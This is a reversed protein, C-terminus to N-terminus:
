EYLSRFKEKLYQIYYDPNFEEGTMDLLLENTSRMAGFQHIHERLYERIPLINGDKLYQEVPMVTSIHDYIQAAAASGLVYSPFYGFMGGSWHVDSLVGDKDSSVTVDLYEKYKKNWAKPLDKVKLKGSILDKELEYRIMIHVPYTLEDANIRVPGQIPKNIGLIFDNLSLDKLQEPYMEKLKPFLPEWFAETKGLMNEFFRSQSEHMGMSAGEGVPTQTLEDAIGLEYLGHGTEHIISFLPQEFGKEPFANTLRVDHNHLAITFPHASEGFVSRNENMGLYLSLFKSYSKQKEPDFKKQEYTKPVAEAKKCIEKMFPILEKKIRSFLLDLKEMTFGPEFDELLIDYGSKKGKKRYKVFQRKLDVIQELFPAFESFDDKERAKQWAAGASVVLEQSKQYENLPIPKLQDQEKKLYDSIAREKDTLQERIKPTKLKDLIQTLEPDTLCLYYEKAMLGLVKATYEVSEKPALTQNDWDSLVQATFLVLRRDLFPQLREYYTNM